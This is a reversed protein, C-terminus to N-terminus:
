ARPHTPRALRARSRLREARLRGREVGERGFMQEAAHQNHPRYRLGLGDVSHLTAQTETSRDRYLDDRPRPSTRGGRIVPESPVPSAGRMSRDSAPPLWWGSSPAPGTSSVGVPPPGPRRYSIGDFTRDGQYRTKRTGDPTGVSRTGPGPSPLHTTRHLTPRKPRTERESQCLIVLDITRPLAEAVERAPRASNSPHQIRIGLEGTLAGLNSRQADVYSSWSTERAHTKEFSAQVTTTARARPRKPGRVALVVPATGPCHAQLSLGTQAFADM